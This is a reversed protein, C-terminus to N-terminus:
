EIFGIIRLNESAKRRISVDRLWCICTQICFNYSSSEKRRDLMINVFDTHNCLVALAAAHGLVPPPVSLPLGKPYPKCPILYSDYLFLDETKNLWRAWSNSLEVSGKCRELCKYVSVIIKCWSYGSIFATISIYFSLFEPLHLINFSLLITALVSIISANSPCFSNCLLPPCLFLLVM